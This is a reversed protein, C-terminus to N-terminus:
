LNCQGVSMLKQGALRTVIVMLDKSMETSSIGHIVVALTGWIRVLQAKHESVKTMYNALGVFSAAALTTLGITEPLVAQFM